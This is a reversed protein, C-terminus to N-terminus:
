GRGDLVRRSAVVFGDLDSGKLYKCSGLGSVRRLSPALRLGARIGLSERFVFCSVRIVAKKLGSVRSKRPEYPARQYQLGETKKEAPPRNLTFTIVGNNPVFVGDAGTPAVGVPSLLAARAVAKLTKVLCSVLGNGPAGRLGARIGLNERFVLCSDRGKHKERIVAERGVIEWSKGTNGPGGM